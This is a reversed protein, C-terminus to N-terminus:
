GSWTRCTVTCPRSRMACARRRRLWRKRMHAHTGGLPCVRPQPLGPPRVAGITKAAERARTRLRRDTTITTLAAALKEATLERVVV